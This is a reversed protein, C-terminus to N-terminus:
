RNRQYSRNRKERKKRAKYQLIDEGKVRKPRNGKDLTGLDTDGTWNSFDSLGPILLPEDQHLRTTSLNAIGVRRVHRKHAILPLCPQVRYSRHL